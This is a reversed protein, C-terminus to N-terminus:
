SGARSPTARTSERRAGTSGPPSSDSGPSSTAGSARRAPPQPWTSASLLVQEVRHAVGRRGAPEGRALRTSRRARANSRARHLPRRLRRRCAPSQAAPAQHRLFGPSASRRRPRRKGDPREDSWSRGSSSRWGAPSGTATSASASRRAPGRERAARRLARDCGLRTIASALAAPDDPEVLLGNVGDSVLEPIGSIGTTVVPTGCAMAEVLVNPIGDRDRLRGRPLPPLARRSAHVRRLLERQSLPGALRVADELGM